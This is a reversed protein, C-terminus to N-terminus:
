RKRAKKLRRSLAAREQEAEVFRSAARLHEVGEDIEALLHKPALPALGRLIGITYDIKAPDIQDLKM